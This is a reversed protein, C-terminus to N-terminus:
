IMFYLRHIDKNVNKALINKHKLVDTMINIVCLKIMVTKKINLVNIKDMNILFVNLVNKM